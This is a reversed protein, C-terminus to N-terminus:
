IIANKAEEENLFLETGKRAGLFVPSQVIYNGRYAWIIQGYEIKNLGMFWVTQGKKFVPKKSKKSNTM